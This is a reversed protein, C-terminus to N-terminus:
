SEKSAGAAQESATADASDETEVAKAPLIVSIATREPDDLAETGKPLDIEGVHLITGIGFNTVDIEISEPISILLM